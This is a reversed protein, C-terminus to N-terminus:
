DHDHSLRLHQAKILSQTSSTVIREGPALGSVVEAYEPNRRGISIARRDARDGKANLVFAYTGNSDNLWTGAPALIASQTSGLSLRVDIAEGRKLDSPMAGAFEMEVSVHGNTVQPFVRTVKVPLTRGHVTASATLGASLRSLYFEDVEARLKYTGESDVEGLPDGQKVAQGPKFDFDTLRGAM